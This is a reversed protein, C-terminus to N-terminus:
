EFHCDTHGDMNSCIVNKQEYKHSLLIGNYIDPKSRFSYILALAIFQNFVDNSVDNIEAKPIGSKAGSSAM